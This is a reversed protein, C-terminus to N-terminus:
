HLVQYKREEESCTELFRTLERHDMSSLHQFEVGFEYDKSWRVKVEKLCLPNNKSPPFILEKLRMGMTAAMTGAIRFGHPCVDLVVGRGFVTENWYMVPWEVEFRPHKRSRM